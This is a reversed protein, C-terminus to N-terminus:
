RMVGVPLVDLRSIDVATAATNTPPRFTYRLRVDGSGSIYRLPSVITQSGFSVSYEDWEATRWNFLSIEGLPTSAGRPGRVRGDIQVDLRSLLFRSLPIPITYQLAISEGASLLYSGFAQRSATTLGIPRHMVLPAPIEGEYGRPLKVPLTALYMTNDIVTPHSDRLTVDMGSGEIWGLFSLGFLDLRSTGFGPSLSAFSQDLVDRRAADTPKKTPTGSPYLNAAFSNPQGYGASGQAALPFSVDRTEGAKFDGIKLFSYDLILFGDSIPSGTHNTLTGFIAQGDTQLDAELGGGLRFQSDAAITGLSGAALNLEPVEPQPGTQVKLTWSAGESSTDRPLPYWQGYVLSGNEGVIDYTSQRRSLIGVYARSYALPSTPLGRIIAVKTMVSDSDRNANAVGVALLSFIMTTLPVTVIAWSLRGLRRLLLYNGPGVSLLFLVLVGVLPAPSPLRLASIDTLASRPSRGWNTYNSSNSQGFSTGTSSHSLVYRWLNVSGNWGRLPPTSPDLALYFVSGLGRKVAVLIPIGDQDVVSNGDTTIAQSALWQGAPLQDRAFDSLNDLRDLPQLGTLRVPLLDAPLGQMTRQWSAGGAVILLGGSAVWSRIADRQGDDLTSTPVNNVIMCDLSTMLQPKVPIDTVDMRALRVRRLPPPLELSPLFDLASATRSVVGCLVDGGTVRALSVDQELVSSTGDTLVARMKSSPSILRVEMQFRKRARKPLSIPATFITPASAFAPRNGNTDLVSIQLEGDFDDGDNRIDVDLPLWGGIKGAGDFGARVLM